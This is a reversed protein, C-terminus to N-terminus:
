VSAGLLDARRAGLLATYDFPDSEFLAGMMQMHSGAARRLHESALDHGSFRRKLIAGVTGAAGSRWDPRAEITGSFRRVDAPTPLLRIKVAVAPDAAAASRIAHELTPMASGGLQFPSFSAPHLLDLDFMPEDAYGSGSVELLGDAHGALGDVYELHDVWAPPLNSVGRYAGAFATAMAGVSDAAGGGNVALIAAGVPNEPSSAFAWVAAPLTELVFGGNGLAARAEEPRRGALDLAAGIRELLSSRAAMHRLELSADPLDALARQVVRYLSQADFGGDPTGTLHAVIAAVAISSSIAAPNAHTVLAQLAADARLADLDTPDLLGIVVARAAAGKGASQGGSQLWSTGNRLARTANVLSPGAARAVPFWAMLRQAYERPDLRGTSIISGALALALQSDDGLQGAPLLYPPLASTLYRNVLGHGAEIAAPSLGVLPRGLADGIGLGVMAGRYRDVLQDGSVRRELHEGIPSPVLGRDTLVSREDWSLIDVGPGKGVARDILRGSM